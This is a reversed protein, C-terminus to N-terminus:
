WKLAEQIKDAWEKVNGEDRRFVFVTWGDKELAARIEDDRDLAKGKDHPEGHVYYVIKKEPYDGDPKTGWLCIWKDTEPTIGRNSLETLLDMELRSKQPQMVAKRQQWTEQPKAPLLKQPVQHNRARELYKFYGDYAEPNFNAKQECRDCLNHGHWPKINEKSVHTHCRECEVQEQPAPKSSNQITDQTKPYYSVTTLEGKVKEKMAESIKEAEPKKLYEPIHRYITRESIGTVKAIEEAKLGCKGILFTLKDRVEESTMRRRCFNTALRALELKAPNDIEGITIANWNPDVEQRHFGDIINGHADKLIPNLKGLGEISKKLDYEKEEVM